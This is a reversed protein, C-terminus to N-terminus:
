YYQELVSLSKLKLTQHTHGQYYHSFFENLERVIPRSLKLEGLCSGISPLNTLLDRAGPSFRNTEDQSYDQRSCSECILGADRKLYAAPSTTAGCSACLDLELKLGQLQMVRIFLRWFLPLPEGEMKLLYDLYGSLLDFYLAHEDASVVLHSILEAGCLATSWRKPDPYSRETVPSAECFLYLGTELPEYLTLEYGWLPQLPPSSPKQRLGKALFSISGLNRCIAQVILSSEGFHSLKLIISIDKVRGKM